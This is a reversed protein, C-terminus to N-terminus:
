GRRARRCATPRHLAFATNIETETSTKLIHLQVGKARAGEQVAQIMHEAASSTPNVLLAFVKTSPVLEFLLDFRKADLEAAMISIGTLNGGPRALSVIVGDAVLDDGGFFVIPITSTAGKAAEIGANGSTAIVDVKRGVLDAVLVPLRDYHGEAWRYEIAVNRGEIYGTDSLGQRFAAVFEAQSVSSGNGLWGIVPMVKQQARAALPWAVAAGGLVIIFNRRKM